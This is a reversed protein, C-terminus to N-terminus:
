QLIWDRTLGHKHIVYQRVTLQVTLVAINGQSKEHHIRFIIFNLEFREKVPHGTKPMYGHYMKPEQIHHNM